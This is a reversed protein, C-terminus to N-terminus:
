TTAWLHGPGYNCQVMVVVQHGMLSISWLHLPGYRSNGTKKRYLFYTITFICDFCAPGLDSSQSMSGRVGINLQMPFFVRMPDKCQSLGGAHFNAKPIGVHQYRFGTFNANDGIRLSFNANGGVRFGLPRRANPSTNPMYM